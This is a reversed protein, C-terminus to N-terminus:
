FSNSNIVNGDARNGLWNFVTPDVDYRIPRVSGDGFAANFAGPHASGFQYGYYWLNINDQANDQAPVFGTYRMVDPDFGDSWGADDDWDGTTYKTPDLRKEGIMLTTSTGDTIGDMTVRAGATGTRTIIGKYVATTPVTWTQGYWYQDWSNPANAPTAGAYDMLARGNIAVNSRRSPCQYISVVQGGPNNTTTYLNNQEIYPLIQFAWGAGQQPTGFPDAPNSGNSYTIPAWPVTGGTPFRGLSDHLNHIALGMQKLNNQCKARTAAARVKQVAPLLLGILVAIIAIVVLLEILTFGRRRPSTM